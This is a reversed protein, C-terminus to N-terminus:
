RVDGTWLFFIAEFQIDKICFTSVTSPCIITGAQAATSKTDEANLYGLKRYIEEGYV